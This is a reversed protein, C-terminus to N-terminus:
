QPTLGGGSALQQLYDMRKTLAARDEKSLNAAEAGFLIGHISKLEDTANKPYDYPKARAAAITTENDQTNRATAGTEQAQTQAMAGSQRIGELQKNGEIEAGVRQMQQQGALQQVGMQGQNQLGQTALQNQGMQMTSQLQGENQLGQTALQNQGQMRIGFLQSVLEDRKALRDGIEKIEKRQNAQSAITNFNAMLDNGMPNKAFVRDMGAQIEDRRRILADTDGFIDNGVTQQVPYMTPAGSFNPDAMVKGGPTGPALSGGPGYDGGKAFAGTYPLPTRGPTMDSGYQSYKPKEFLPGYESDMMNRVAAGGVTEQGPAGGQDKRPNSGISAAAPAKQFKASNDFQVMTNAERSDMPVVASDSAPAEARRDSFGKKKAFPDNTVLSKFGSKISAGIEKAKKGSGPGFLRDAYKVSSPFTSEKVPDM